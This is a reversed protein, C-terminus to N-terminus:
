SESTVNEEVAADEALSKNGEEEEELTEVSAEKCFDYAPCGKCKEEDFNEPDPENEVAHYSIQISDVIEATGEMAKIAVNYHEEGPKSVVLCQWFTLLNKAELLTLILIAMIAALWYWWGNLFRVCCIICILSALHTAKAYQCENAFISYRSVEEINPARGLDYYANEVANKAGLYKAFEITEKDKSLRGLLIAFAKPMTMVVIMVYMITMFLNTWIDSYSWGTSLFMLFVSAVLLVTAAIMVNKSKERIKSRMRTGEGDSKERCDVDLVRSEVSESDTTYAFYGSTTISIPGLNRTPLFGVGDNEVIGDLRIDKPHNVIKKM